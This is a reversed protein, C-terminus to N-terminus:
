IKWELKDSHNRDAKVPNYIIQRATLLLGTHSLELNAQLRYSLSVNSLLTLYLETLTLGLGSPLSDAQQLAPGLEIGPEACRPPKEWQASWHHPSPSSVRRTAVSSHMTFILIFLFLPM